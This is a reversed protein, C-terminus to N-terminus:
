GAKYVELEIEILFVPLALEKVGLWTGTPFQKTYITRRHAANELFQPMDTTFINEVIVDDFTCGYHQLIRELAAYCNKMQQGMDGIATPNGQDDMSVAGSVKIINGVKVAHSYGFGKEVEPRLSFYEPQPVTTTMASSSKTPSLNTTQDCSPLALSLTGFILLTVLHPLFNTTTSMNVSELEVAFNRRAPFTFNYFHSLSM